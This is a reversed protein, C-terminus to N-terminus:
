KTSDLREDCCSVTDVIQWKMLVMQHLVLGQPLDVFVYDGIKFKQEWRVNKDFDRKYRRQAMSLRRSVAAKVLEIQQQFSHPIYRPAVNGQMNNPLFAIRDFKAVYPLKHPFIM